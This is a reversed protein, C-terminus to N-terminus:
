SHWLLRRATREAVKPSSPWWTGEWGEGHKVFDEWSDWTIIMDHTWHNLMENHTRIGEIDLYRGDPMEIFAHADPTIKGRHEFGFTAIKWGTVDHIARALIHCDGETFRRVLSIM